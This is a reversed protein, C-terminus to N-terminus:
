TSAIETTVQNLIMDPSVSRSPATIDFIPGRNPNQAQISAVMEILAQAEKRAGRSM